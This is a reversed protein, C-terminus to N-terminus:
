SKNTLRHLLLLQWANCILLPFIMLLLWDPENARLAPFWEVITIVVMFFLAPVFAAKNTQVMKIYAIILGFIFILIAPLMYSWLSQDAQAFIQYRFYVLDFLVIAILVIQAPSWFSRFLGLGFRHVTLYAFFGMQSILSFIFGVGLLWFSVSLIEIIEMTKFLEAYEDWKVAFGVIITSIGGIVLTTLFLYVWKRSNM